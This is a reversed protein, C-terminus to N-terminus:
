SATWWQGHCQQINLPMLNIWWGPALYTFMYDWETSSSIYMIACFNVASNKPLNGFEAPVICVRKLVNWGGMWEGWTKAQRGEEAASTCDLLQTMKTLKPQGFSVIFAIEAHVRRPWHRAATWATCVTLYAAFLEAGGYIDFELMQSRSDFMEM